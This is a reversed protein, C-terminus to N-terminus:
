DAMDRKAVELLAFLNSPHLRQGFPSVYRALWEVLGKTVRVPAGGGYLFGTVERRLLKREKHAPSEHVWAQHWNVTRGPFSDLLDLGDRLSYKRLHGSSDEPGYNRGLNTWNDELPLNVLVYRSSLKGAEALFGVDNEVHELIDSLIVCDVSAPPLCDFGALLFEVGSHRERAAVMNEASIDSGFRQGGPVVPFTAILEGTACGIELVRQPLYDTPLCRLLNPVKFGRVEIDIQRAEVSGAVRRAKYEIHSDYLAAFDVSSGNRFKTM